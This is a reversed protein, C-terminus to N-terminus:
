QKPEFRFTMPSGNKAALEKLRALAQSETEALIDSDAIRKRAEKEFDNLASQREAGTVKNWWGDSDEFALDGIREVSLIKAPPLDAKIEGNDFLRVVFPDTLDFGAKARFAARVRITKQSGLFTSMWQFEYDFDKQLVALEAIPASQQLVVVEHEIVKPQLQAFEQFVDTVARLADASGKGAERIMEGPAHVVLKVLWGAFLVGAMMLVGFLVPRIWWRPNEKSEM